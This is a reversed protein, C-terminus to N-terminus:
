PSINLVTELGALLFVLVAFTKRHCQYFQGVTPLSLSIQVWMLCSIVFCQTFSVYWILHIKRFTSLLFCWHHESVLSDRCSCNVIHNLEVFIRSKPRQTWVLGQISQPSYHGSHASIYNLNGQTLSSTFRFMIPHLWEYKYFTM